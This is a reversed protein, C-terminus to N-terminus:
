TEDGGIHFPFCLNEFITGRKLSIAPEAPTVYPQIPVSAMALTQACGCASPPESEKRVPSM